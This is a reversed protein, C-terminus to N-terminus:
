SVAPQLAPSGRRAAFAAEVLADLRTMSRPWSHNSLVRDRGAQALRARLAPDRLVSVVAASIEAPTDAVLLHENPIVDVGGAANTSSVVPVGLALSELIKNQTGRAIQLNALTLAARRVFPRVDPVSGTVEVGPLSALARIEPSPDAGVISFRVNPLQARILGLTDRCFAQVAQQNPFYDMRGVFAILNPDYDTGDPAFYESDVGNPFWGTPVPVDFSRLTELEAATTCTCLDFQAALQKERRELKRGELWYGFSLPFPQFQSYALWKQSDMDGFDLIKVARRHEAVYPAVSSCHVFILDFQRERLLKRVHRGLEASRFYGFSSPEPTPLRVIMRAWAAMPNVRGSFYEACHPAIGEGARAEAEDRALSLVSVEWGRATFHRLINFPRIKGGRKPPYPFRHCLFLVKM